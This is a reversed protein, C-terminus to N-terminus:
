NKLKHSVVPKNPAPPPSCRVAVINLVAKSNSQTVPIAKLAGGGGTMEGYKHIRPVTMVPCQNPPMIVDDDDPELVIRKPAKTGNTRSAKLARMYIRDNKKQLLRRKKKKMKMIKKELKAAKKKLRKMAEPTMSNQIFVSIDNKYPSELLYKKINNTIVNFLSEATIIPVLTSSAGGRLAEIM